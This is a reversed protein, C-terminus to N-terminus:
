LKLPPNQLLSSHDLTHLMPILSDRICMEFFFARNYFDAKWSGSMSLANVVPHNTNIASMEVAISETLKQTFSLAELHTYSVPTGGGALAFKKQALNNNKGEARELFDLHTYSVHVLNLFIIRDADTKTHCVM